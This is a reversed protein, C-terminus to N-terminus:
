QRSLSPEHRRNGKEKCMQCKTCFDVCHSCTDSPFHSFNCQLGCEVFSFVLSIHFLFSDHQTVQVTWDSSRRIRAIVFTLTHALWQVPETTKARTTTSVCTRARRAITRCGVTAIKTWRVNQVFRFRFRCNSFSTRWVVPVWWLQLRQKCESPFEIQFVGLRAHVNRRWFRFLLRKRRRRYMKRSRRWVTRSM